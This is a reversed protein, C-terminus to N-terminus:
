RFKVRSIEVMPYYVFRRLFQEPSHRLILYGYNKFLWFRYHMNNKLQYWPISKRMTATMGSDNSYYTRLPENFCLAKYNKTVQYWWYSGQYYGRKHRPFNISKFLEVSICGWKEGNVNYKYDLEFNSFHKGNDPFSDGVISGHEDQCLVSIGSTITQDCKDWQSAFFELTNSEFTDDQDAPVFLEGKAMRLVKETTLAKGINSQSIYKVDFDTINEIGKLIIEESNDSSGDNVIIWEFDKLTQNLVSQLVRYFCDQGNYVPTFVTFKPTTNM